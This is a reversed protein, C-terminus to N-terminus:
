KRGKRVLHHYPPLNPTSTADPVENQRDTANLEVLSLVLGYEIAFTECFFGKYGQLLSINALFSGALCLAYLRWFPSGKRAMQLLSGFCLLLLALFPIFGFLGTSAMQDLYGNHVVVGVGIRQEIEDTVAEHGVGLFWNHWFLNLTLRDIELRRYFTLPRDGLLGQFFWAFYESHWVIAILALLVAGSIVMLQLFLDQSRLALVCAFFLLVMFTAVWSNRSQSVFLGLLLLLLAAVAWPRKLLFDKQWASVLFLPLVSNLIIGYEGYSMQFGSTRRFHMSVGWFTRPNRPMLGFPDFNFVACFITFAALAAVSIMLLNLVRLYRRRDRVMQYTTLIIILVVLRGAVHRFEQWTAIRGLNLLDALWLWGFLCFFGIQLPFHPRSPATIARAM